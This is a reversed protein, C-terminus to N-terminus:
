YGLIGKVDTLIFVALPRRTMATEAVLASTTAAAMTTVAAAPFRSKLL